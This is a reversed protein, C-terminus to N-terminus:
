SLSLINQFTRSPPPNNPDSSLQRFDVTVTGVASSTNLSHRHQGYAM